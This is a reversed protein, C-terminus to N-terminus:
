IVLLLYVGLTIGASRERAVAPTRHGPTALSGRMRWCSSFGLVQDDRFLVFLTHGSAPPAAVQQVATAEDTLSGEQCTGARAVAGYAKWCAGGFPESASADPGGSNQGLM